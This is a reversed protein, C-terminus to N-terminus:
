STPPCPSNPGWAAWDYDNMSGSPAITFQLTGNNAACIQYWYSSTAENSSLCGQNSGNLEDTGGAVATEGQSLTCTWEGPCDGAQSYSMASYVIGLIVPLTRKM